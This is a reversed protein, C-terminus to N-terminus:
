CVSCAETAFPVKFRTGHEFQDGNLDRVKVLSPPFEDLKKDPFALAGTKEATELHHKMSGANNGM